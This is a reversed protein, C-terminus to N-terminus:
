RRLERRLWWIGGILMPIGFLAVVAILAVLFSQVLYDLTWTSFPANWNGDLYVKLIFAINVLFSFGNGYDRRKSDSRFMRGRRYEQREDAPLRKWVSYAIIVGVLVPLGVLLAEWFLLNLIFTILHGMAWLDLTAPVLGSSQAQGVFWLFVLVAGIVALAAGAVFASAMKWRKRLFKKWIASREDSGTETTM